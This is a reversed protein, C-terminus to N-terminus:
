EIDYNSSLFHYEAGPEPNPQVDSILTTQDGNEDMCVRVRHIYELHGEISDIQVYCFISGWPCIIGDCNLIDSIRNYKPIFLVKRCM